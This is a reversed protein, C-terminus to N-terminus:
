WAYYPYPRYYSGRYYPSVYAGGYFSSYAYPRYGTVYPAYGYTYAYAPAYYPNYVYPRRYYPRYSSRYAYPGYYARYSRPYWGVQEVKMGDTAPSYIATQVRIPEDAQVPTSLGGLVIAAGVIMAASFIKM